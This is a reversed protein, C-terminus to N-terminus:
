LTTNDKNNSSLESSIRANKLADDGIVKIHNVTTIITDECIEFGECYVSDVNTIRSEYLAREGNGGVIGYVNSVISQTFSEDGVAM